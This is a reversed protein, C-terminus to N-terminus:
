PVRIREDSSAARPLPQLLPQLGCPVAARFRDAQLAAKQAGARPHSAPEAGCPQEASCRRAGHRAGSRRTRSSAEESGCPQRAQSSTRASGSWPSAQTNSCAASSVSPRMPTATSRRSSRRPSTAGICTAAATLCPSLRLTLLWSVAKNSGAGTLKAFGHPRYVVQHQLVAPHAVVPDRVNGREQQREDEAPKCAGRIHPHRAHSRPLGPRGARRRTAAPAGACIKQFRPLAFGPKWGCDGV